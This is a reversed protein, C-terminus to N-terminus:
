MYVACGTLYYFLAVQKQAIGLDDARSVCVNWKTHDDTNFKHKWTRLYTTYKLM